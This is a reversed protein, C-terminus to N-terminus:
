SSAGSDAQRSELFHEFALRCTQELTRDTEVACIRLRRHLDREVPTVIIKLGERSAVRYRM